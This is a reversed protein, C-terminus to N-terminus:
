GCVPAQHSGGNLRRIELCTLAILDPLAPRDAHADVAAAIVALLAQATMAILTWRRWSTWRRVQREDLGPWAKSAQFAEEIAWRRGAVRVL